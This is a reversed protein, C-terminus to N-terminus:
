AARSGRLIQLIAPALDPKESLLKLIEEGTPDLEIGLLLYSVSVELVDALAMLNHVSPERGSKLVLSIYNPGCGAETSIRRASKGSKDVAEALRMRWNRDM